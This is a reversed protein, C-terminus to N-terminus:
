LLDAPLLVNVSAGGGPAENIWASGGHLEAFRRVVSLGIGRGAVVSGGTQFVDFVSERVAAPVGPGDDDVTLLVGRDHRAIHVSIRATAGGHRAANALLNEMIREIQGADVYAVLREGGVTALGGLGLARVAELALEMLDTPEREAEVVGRSLRDIDLLDELQRRMRKSAEVVRDAYAHREEASLQPDLDRLMAAFREIVLLPGRLDHSVTRLFADKQDNLERLDQLTDHRGADTLDINVQGSLPREPDGVAVPAAEGGAISPSSRSPEM